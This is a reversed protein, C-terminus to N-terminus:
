LPAAGFAETAAGDAYAKVWYDGLPLPPLALDATFEGDVVPVWAGVVVKDVARQWNEHVVAEDPDATNLPELDELLVDRSAEITVWAETAGRPASGLISVLQGDTEVDMSIAEENDLELAPDGFANYLDLNERLVTAQTEEDVGGLIGYAVIRDRLEGEHLLEAARMEVLAEGITAPRSDLLARESEYGLVANAYSHSIGSAAFTLLPGGDAFLAREAISPEAEIYRGNNCAFFFALPTGGTLQDIQEAALGEAAAASGHGFYFAVRSGGNLLDVVKDEFPTYYFDSQVENYVGVIDWRPDVVNLAEMMTTELLAQINPEFGSNGAYIVVRRHTISPEIGAEYAQLRDLYAMGLEADDTPLRAVAVEAIGDGDLDGYGNDTACDGFSNECPLAPISPVDGILFLYLPAGVPLESRLVELRGRVQAAFVEFGQEGGIQGTLRVEPVRGRHGRYEAFAVAVDLMEDATVILYDVPPAPDSAPSGISAAYTWEAEDPLDCAIWTLMLLM